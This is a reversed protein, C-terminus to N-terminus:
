RKTVTVNRSQVLLTEYAANLAKTWEEALERSDADAGAFHDPHCEKVRRRYAIKIEAASATPAVGLIEYPALKEPETVSVPPVAEEFTDSKETQVVFQHLELRLASTLALRSVDARLFLIGEILRLQAILRSWILEPFAELLEARSVSKTKAALYSLVKACAEIDLRVLCM